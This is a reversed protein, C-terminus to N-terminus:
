KNKEKLQDRFRYFLEDLLYNKYGVVDNINISCNHIEMVQPEELEVEKGDCIMSHTLTLRYREVTMEQPRDVTFKDM